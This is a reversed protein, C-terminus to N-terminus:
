TLEPRGLVDGVAIGRGAAFQAATLRKRGPAQLELIVVRGDACAVHLGAADVAVVEGPAGGGAGARARFLKVVQGRLTAQAGPWPDVGRIRAAVQAAPRTFDIAGDAKSLMPAHTAAAHEQPVPKADGRAIAAIADLLAQAGIPALRALLEGSTEDPDIAIKRELLVPGTDMGEDLQM